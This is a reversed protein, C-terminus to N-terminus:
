MKYYKDLNRTVMKYHLHQFFGWQKSKKDFRTSDNPQNEGLIKSAKGLVLFAETLLRLSSPPTLM